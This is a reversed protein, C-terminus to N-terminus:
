SSEGPLADPTTFGGSETMSRADGLVTLTPAQWPQLDSRPDINAGDHDPESM